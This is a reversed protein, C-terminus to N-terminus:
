SATDLVAWEDIVADMDNNKASMAGAFQSRFSLGMNVGDFTLNRVKWNGDSAGMAFVINVTNGDPRRAQVLVSQKKVGDGKGTEVSISVDGYSTLAQSLTDVLSDRFVSAFRTRQAESAAAYHTKGMVGRSIRAFDVVPDLVAGVEEALSAPADSHAQVSAILQQATREVLATADNAFAPAVLVASLVWAKIANAFTM